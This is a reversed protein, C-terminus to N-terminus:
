QLSIYNNRIKKIKQHINVIEERSYDYHRITKTRLSDTYPDKIQTEEETFCQNITEQLTLLDKGIPLDLQEEEIAKLINSIILRQDLIVQYIQATDKTNIAMDTMLYFGEIWAGTMVLTAIKEQGSEKLYADSKFFTESIIDKIKDPKDFNNEIKIVLSDDVSEIVGLDESLQMVNNLFDGTLQNHRYLAVFALDTSYIGLNLAKADATTYGIINSTPNLISTDFSVNSKKVITAMEVPSPLSYYIKKISEFVNATDLTDMNSDYEENDKCSFLFLSIGLIVLIHKKYM